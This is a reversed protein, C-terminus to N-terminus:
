MGVYMVYVVCIVYECVNCVTYVWMCYMGCVNMSWYM